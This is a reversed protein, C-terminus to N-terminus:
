SGFEFYLYIVRYTYFLIM